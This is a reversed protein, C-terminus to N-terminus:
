GAADPAKPRPRHSPRSADAPPAAARSRRRILMAAILALGIVVILLVLAALVIGLPDLSHHFIHVHISATM